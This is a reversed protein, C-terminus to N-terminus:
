IGAVARAEKASLFVGSDDGIRQLMEVLFAILKSTEDYHGIVDMEEDGRYGAM